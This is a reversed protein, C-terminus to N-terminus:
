LPPELVMNQIRFTDYSKNLGMLFQILKNQSLISSFIGSVNCSCKNVAGCMCQPIPQLVNFKEWLKKLRTYYTVVLQNGQEVSSIQMQIRYIQPVNSEGFQEELQEELEM